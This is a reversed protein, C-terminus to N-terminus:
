VTGGVKEATVVAGAAASRSRVSLRGAMFAIPLLLAGLWWLSPRTPVPVLIGNGDSWERGDFRMSGALVFERVEVDAYPRILGTQWVRRSGSWSTEAAFSELQVTKGRVTGVLYNVWPNSGLVAGHAVQQVCGSTATVAHVEGVLYLDAGGDCMTRWLVSDTGGTMMLGSSQEVRVPGLVPVHGQVVVFHDEHDALLQELWRAQQEGIDLRMEDGSADFVDVTVFLVGGHEFAYATRSAPGPPRSTYRGDTFHEAWVDKYTDVLSLSSNWTTDEGVEHDGLAVHVSLGRDAFRDKWAPYYTDGAQRIAGEQQQRTDVPGFEGTGDVNEHWMGMVTDGAVLVFEPEHSAVEDLIEGAAREYAPHSSPGGLDANLFDPISVFTWSDDEAQGAAATPWVLATLAVVTIAIRSVPRATM